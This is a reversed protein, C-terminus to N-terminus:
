RAENEEGTLYGLERSWHVCAETDRAVRRREHGGDIAVAPPRRGGAHATRAKAAPGTRAGGIAPSLM